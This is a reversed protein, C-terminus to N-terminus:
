AVLDAVQRLEELAREAKLRAADDRAASVAEEAARVRSEIGARDLDALPMAEDALVTLGAPTVEAFGGRVFLRAVPKGEDHVEILGARITAILPAHGPLVGFDGETGPVVVMEVDSSQILREPSVLEFKLKDAM